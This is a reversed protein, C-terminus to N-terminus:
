RRWVRARENVSNTGAADDLIPFLEFRFDEPALKEHFFPTISHILKLVGMRVVAVTFIM